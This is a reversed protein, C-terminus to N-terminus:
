SPQNGDRTSIEEFYGNEGSVKATLPNVLLSYFTNEGEVHIIMRDATGSAYVTGYCKGAPFPRGNLIVDRLQYGEPFRLESSGMFLGKEDVVGVTVRNGGIDFELVHNEYNSIAEERVVSFSVSFNELLTERGTKSTTRWNVSAFMLFISILLVVIILEVLTFGRTRRSIQARFTRM